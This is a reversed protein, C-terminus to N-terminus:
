CFLGFFFHHTSIKEKTRNLTCTMESLDNLKIRLEHCLHCKRGVGDFEVILGLNYILTCNCCRTFSAGNVNSQKARLSFGGSKHFHECVSGCLFAVLVSTKSLVSLLVSRHEVILKM